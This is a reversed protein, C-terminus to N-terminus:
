RWRKAGGPLIWGHLVVAVKTGNDHSTTNGAERCGVRELFGSDIM